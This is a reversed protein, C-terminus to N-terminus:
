QESRAIAFAIRCLAHTLHSEGTEEDPGDQHQYIHRLAAAVHDEVSLTKWKEDPHKSLGFALVRGAALVAKSPLLDPRSKVDSQQTTNPALAGAFRISQWTEGNDPRTRHKALSPPCSDLMEFSLWSANVTEPRAAANAIGSNLYRMYESRKTRFPAWSEDYRTAFDNGLADLWGGFMYSLYQVSYGDRRMAHFTEFPIDVWEDHLTYQEKTTM